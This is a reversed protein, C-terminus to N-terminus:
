ILIWDMPCPITNAEIDRADQARKRPMPKRKRFDALVFAKKRMSKNSVPM